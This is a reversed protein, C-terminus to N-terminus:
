RPARPTWRASHTSRRAAIVENLPM